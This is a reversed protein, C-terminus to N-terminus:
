IRDRRSYKPHEVSRRIYKAASVRGRTCHRAAESDNFQDSDAEKEIAECNGVFGTWVEDALKDSQSLWLRYREITSAAEALLHLIKGPAEAHQSHFRLEDTIDTM